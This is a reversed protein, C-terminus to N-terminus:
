WSATTSGLLILFVSQRTFSSSSHVHCSSPFTFTGSRTALGASQGASLAPRLKDATCEGGCVWAANQNIPGKESISQRPTIISRWILINSLEAPARDSISHAGTAKTEAMLWGTNMIGGSVFAKRFHFQSESQLIHYRALQWMSTQKQEAYTQTEMQATTPVHESRSALGQPHQLWTKKCSIKWSGAAAAAQTQQSPKLNLRDDPQLTSATILRPNGGTHCRLLQLWWKQIRHCSGWLICFPSTVTYAHAAHHKVHCFSYALVPVIQKTMQQKSEQSKSIIESLGCCMIIMDQSFCSM